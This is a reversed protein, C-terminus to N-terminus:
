EEGETKKAIEVVWAANISQNTIKMATSSTAPRLCSVKTPEGNADQQIGIPKCKDTIEHIAQLATLQEKVMILLRETCGYSDGEKKKSADPPLKDGMIKAVKAGLDVTLKCGKGSSQISARDILLDIKSELANYKETNEDYTGGKKGASDALNKALTNISEKYEKLGTDIVEDYPSVFQVTSCGSLLLIAFMMYFYKMCGGKIKVTNQFLKIM